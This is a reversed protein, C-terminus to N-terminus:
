QCRLWALAATIGFATSFILLITLVRNTIVLHRNELKKGYLEFNAEDLMERHTEISIKGDWVDKWAEADTEPFQSLTKDMESIWTDRFSIKPVKNGLDVDTIKTNFNTALLDERKAKWYAQSEADKEFLPVETCEAMLDNYIAKQEKERTHWDLETVEEIPFGLFPLVVINEKPLDEILPIGGIDSLSRKVIYAKDCEAIVDEKSREESM